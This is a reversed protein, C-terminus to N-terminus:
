DIQSITMYKQIATSKRFRTGDASTLPLEAGALGIGCAGRLTSLRVREFSTQPTRKKECLVCVHMVFARGRPWM